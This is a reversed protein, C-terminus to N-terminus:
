RVPPQIRPLHIGKPLRERDLRLIPREGVDADVELVTEDGYGFRIRGGADLPHDFYGRARAGDPDLQVFRSRVKGVAMFPELARPAFAIGALELRTFLHPGEAQDVVVERVDWRLIERRDPYWRFTAEHM